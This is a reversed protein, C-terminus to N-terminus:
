ATIVEVANPKTANARRCPTIFRALLAMENEHSVYPLFNCNHTAFYNGSWGEERWTYLTVNFRRVNVWWGEATKVHMASILSLNTNMRASAEFLRYKLLYSIARVLEREEQQELCLRLQQLPLFDQYVCGERTYKRFLAQCCNTFFFFVIFWSKHWSVKPLLAKANWLM